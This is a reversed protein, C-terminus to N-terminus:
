FACSPTRMAQVLIRSSCRVWFPSYILESSKQYSCRTYSTPPIHRMIVWILSRTAHQGHSTRCMLKRCMIQSRPKKQYKLSLLRQIAYIEAGSRQTSNSPRSTIASACLWKTPLVALHSLLRMRMRMRPL